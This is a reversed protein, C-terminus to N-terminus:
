KREEPEGCFICVYDNGDFKYLCRNLPSLKCENYDGNYCDEFQELLMSEYRERKRKASNHLEYLQKETDKLMSLTTREMNDLEYKILDKIDDPQAKIIPLNKYKKIPKVNGHNDVKQNHYAEILLDYNLKYEKEYYTLDNVFADFLKLPIEKM